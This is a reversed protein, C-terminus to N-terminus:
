IIFGENGVRRDRLSLDAVRFRRGHALEATPKGLVRAAAIRGLADAKMIGSGSTGSVWTLNAVSEVVPTSDPWHCAYYGAWMSAPKVDGCGPFYHRLVPLIAQRFYAGDPAPDEMSCPQGLDDACGAIMLDRGRVPKLYVGGAPLILAPTPPGAMGSGPSRYIRDGPIRFGFLQRKKPYINTFVGLPGLLHQTWAGAASIFGDGRIREGGSTRAALIGTRDWPAYRTESGEIDFGTIETGFRVEGGARRFERVYHEALAMGSLSGCRHGLIGRSIHPFRESGARNARLIGHIEEEGLVELRPASPGSQDRLGATRDWQDRSFLWLYGIPDIQIDTGLTEYYSISGVALERNVRSSFIDRYLAASKGTAGTGPRSGRDVLLVRADPDTCLLHHATAAGIVGSGIIVHHYHM